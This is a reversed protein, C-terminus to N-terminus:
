NNIIYGIKIGFPIHIRYFKGEYQDIPMLSLWEKFWSMPRDVANTTQHKINLQKLGVGVYGDFVLRGSIHEDGFLISTAIAKRDIMSHDFHYSKGNKILWSNDKRYHQPFYFGQISFYPHDIQSAQSTKGGLFYKIEVKYKYYNYNKRDNKQSSFSLKDFKLGYDFAVAMMSNFRKQVGVQITGTMPDVLNMPAIRLQFLKNPNNQCYCSNRILFSFTLITIYFVRTM